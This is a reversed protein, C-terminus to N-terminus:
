LHSTDKPARRAARCSTSSQCAPGEGPEGAPLATGAAALVRGPRQREEPEEPEDALLERPLVVVAQVGGYVNSQLRVAIRHRRALTAVVFLGVRGDELLGGADAHADGSLVVNMRGLEAATMGLGRDEVEVAVGTSVRRASLLVQTQAASFETANQVLEVLLHVVDAVAHGRLTGEAPPVVRVRAYHESEAVCSRLLDCLRVPRNWPCRTVAGGLVALNEAHRRIQTALHDIHCLTKLLDPDEVENRLEDLCETQRLVVRQIRRALSVRAVSTEVPGGHDVVRRPATAAEAVAAEAVAAEAAGRLAAIDEHLQAFADDEAEKPPQNSPVTPAGRGLRRLLARVETRRRAAQRCLAALRDARTGAEGAAALAAGTVVAGTLLAAWALVSWPAAGGTAPTQQRGADGILYSVAAIAIAAVLAGPLVALCLLAHRAAFLGPRPPEPM